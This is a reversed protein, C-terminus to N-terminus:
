CHKHQHHVPVTLSSSAEETSSHLANLIPFMQNYYKLLTSSTYLMPITTNVAPSRQALRFNFHTCTNIKTITWGLQVSVRPNRPNRPPPHAHRINEM